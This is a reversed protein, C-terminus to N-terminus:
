KKKGGRRARGGREDRTKVRTELVRTEVVLIFADGRNARSDIAGVLLANMWYELDENVCVGIFFALMEGVLSSSVDSMALLSASSFLGQRMRRRSWRFMFWWAPWWAM